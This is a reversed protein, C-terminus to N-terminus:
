IDVLIESNCHAVNGKRWMEWRRRDCARATILAHRTAVHDGPEAAVSADWSSMYGKQACTHRSVRRLYQNRTQPLNLRSGATTYPQYYGTFVVDMEVALDVLLVVGEIRSGYVDIGAVTKACVKGAASQTIWFHLKSSLLRWPAAVAGTYTYKTGDLSGLPMFTIRSLPTDKLKIRKDDRRLWDEQRSGGGGETTFKAIDVTCPVEEWTRMWGAFLDSDARHGCGIGDPGTTLLAQDDSLEVMAFVFGQAIAYGFVRLTDSRGYAKKVQESCCYDKDVKTRGFLCLRALCFPFVCTDVVSKRDLSCRKKLLVLRLQRFRELLRAADEPRPSWGTAFPHVQEWQKVRNIFYTENLGKNNAATLNKPYLAVYNPMDILIVTYAYKSALKLYPEIEWVMVNTSKNIIVPVNNQMFGEIKSACLVHSKHMTEKNREPAMPSTFLKDSWYSRSNPYLQELEDVVIGKGMGPPGRVLFLLRGHTRLFHQTKEVKICPADVHHLLETNNVARVSGSDGMMKEIRST